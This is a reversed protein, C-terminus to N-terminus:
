IDPALHPSPAKADLDLLEVQERPRRLPATAERGARQAALAETPGKDGLCTRTAPKVARGNQPGHAPMVAVHCAAQCDCVMSYIMRPCVNGMAVFLLAPMRSELASDIDIDIDYIYM